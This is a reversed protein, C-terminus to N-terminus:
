VMVQAESHCCRCPHPRHQHSLWPSFSPFMPRCFLSFKVLICPCFSFSFLHPSIIVGSCGCRRDGKPLLPRAARIVHCLCLHTLSSPFLSYSFLYQPSVTGLSFRWCFSTTGQSNVSMMINQSWAMYGCELLYHATQFFYNNRREKKWWRKNKRESKHVAMCLQSASCWVCVCVPM